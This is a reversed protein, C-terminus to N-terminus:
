RFKLFAGELWYDVAAVEDGSDASPFVDVACEGNGDDLSELEIRGHRGDLWDDERRVTVRCGYYLLIDGGESVKCAYLTM